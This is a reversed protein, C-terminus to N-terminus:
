KANPNNRELARLAYDAMLKESEQDSRKSTVCLAALLILGSLVVGILIGIIM